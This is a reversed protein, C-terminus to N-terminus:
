HNLFRRWPKFLVDALGNLEFSYLVPSFKSGRSCMLGSHINKRGILYPNKLKTQSPALTFAFKLGYRRLVESVHGDYSDHSGYPYSFFIIPHKLKEELNKKNLMIEKELRSGSLKTLVLHSHSHAGVTGGTKDIEILEEWTLLNEFLCDSSLSELFIDILKRAKEEYEDPEMKKFYKNVEEVFHFKADPTDLLYLGFELASLDVTKQWTKEAFVTLIDYILPLREELPKTCVFVTFPVGVAICIPSVRLFFSKYCDDFTLALFDHKLPKESLLLECAEELSIIPYHKGLFSLQEKFLKENLRITFHSNNYSGECIDHFCLIIVKGNGTLHRLWVFLYNIGTWYCFHAITVKAALKFRNWHRTFYWQIYYKKKRQIVYSIIDEYRRVMLDLSFRERIVRRGNEGMLRRMDPNKLLKLIAEALAEPAAPPVLFGTKGHEVIEPNGGVSTAVVPLGLAMSELITNSLGESLSPLVSIDALSLLGATEDPRVEGTFFVHEGLQKKQILKLLFEYYARDGDCNGVFFFKVKAFKTIILSIADILYHLGKIHRVNALCCVKITQSDDSFVSLISKSEPLKIHNLLDPNVGNYIVDTKNQPLWQTKIIISKVASSVAVTYDFFPNLFRYLWVHRRKLQFGMDRRSSIVPVGTIIGALAGMYDSSDHFTVLVSINKSKIIKILRAFGIIGKISFIKKVDLGQVTFGEKQLSEVLPGGQLYCIEVFNGNDRLRRSLLILSREAGGM